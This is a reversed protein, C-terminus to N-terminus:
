IAYKLESLPSSELALPTTYSRRLFITTGVIRSQKVCTLSLLHLAATSTHFFFQFIFLHWGRRLSFLNLLSGTQSCAKRGRRESLYDPTEHITSRKRWREADLLSCADNTWTWTNRPDLLCRCESKQRASVCPQLISCLPIAPVYQLDLAVSFTRYFLFSFFTGDRTLFIKTWVAWDLATLKKRRVDWAASFAYKLEALRSSELAM